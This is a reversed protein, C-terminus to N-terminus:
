EIANGWVMRFLIRLDLYTWQRRLGSGQDNKRLHRNIKREPITCCTSQVVASVQGQADKVCELDPDLFRGGIECGMRYAEGAGYEGEGRWQNFGKGGVEVREKWVKVLDNRCRERNMVVTVGQQWM